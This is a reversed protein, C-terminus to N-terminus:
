MVNGQTINFPDCLMVCPKTNGHFITPRHYYSVQEIVFQFNGALYKRDVCKAILTKSEQHFDRAIREAIDYMLTFNYM